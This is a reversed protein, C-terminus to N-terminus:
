AVLVCYFSYSDSFFLVIYLILLSVGIFFIPQPHKGSKRMNKIGIKNKKQKDPLIRSKTFMILPAVETTAKSPSYESPKDINLSILPVPAKLSSTTCNATPDAIFYRKNGLTM